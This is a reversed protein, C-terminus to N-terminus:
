ETVVEADDRQARQRELIAAVAELDRQADRLWRQEHSTLSDTERVIDVQKIAEDLRDEPLM